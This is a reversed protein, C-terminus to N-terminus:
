EAAAGWKTFTLDLRWQRRCRRCRGGVEVDEGDLFVFSVAFRLLAPGLDAGSERVLFPGSKGDLELRERDVSSKDDQRGIGRIVAAVVFLAM